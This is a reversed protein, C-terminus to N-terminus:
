EMFLISPVVRVLMALYVAGYSPEAETDHEVQDIIEFVHM